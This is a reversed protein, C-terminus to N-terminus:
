SAGSSFGGPTELLPIRRTQEPHNRVKRVTLIPRFNGEVEVNRLELQVDSLDALLGLTRPEHVDAHLALLAHGGLALCRRRIQRAVGVVEPTPLLELIFDLSDVAIRFPGEFTALDSLLRATPKPTQIPIEAAVVGAIDQYRVGRERARAIELERDLVEAQYRETLNTVTVGNPPWGYDAFARRVDEEREYTSYYIVPGGAAGVHAFQKALLQLGAGSEGILLAVWGKPLLPGVPGDFAPIGLIPGVPRPEPDAM